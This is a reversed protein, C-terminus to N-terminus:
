VSIQSKKAGSVRYYKVYCDTLDLKDVVKKAFDIAEQRSPYRGGSLLIEGNDVDVIDFTILFKFKM